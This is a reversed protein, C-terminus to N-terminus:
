ARRALRAVVEDHLRGNSSLLSPSAPSPGGDVGTVRGGAEEVIVVLAAVDWLALEPEAAIDVAGEAVLVHSWFDGYARSRWCSDLLDVFAPRAGAWGGLSSYSLSADALRHVQSVRNRRPQDGQRLTWSGLGREAWWRHGLAPASVVGVRVEDDVVLAILTAWVPVGRVFNKTGDIPDLVWTRLSSDHQSAFEEGVVGDDPRAQEIEARLAREVARDADTVPTSDPKTDVQLDLARFRELSITDAVDALHLAFALDASGSAELM